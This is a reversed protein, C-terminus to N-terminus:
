AIYSLSKSELYLRDPDLDIENNWFVIGNDVKVKSCISEDKLSKYIPYCLYPTLDFTKLEKNTFEVILKYPSEYTVKKARPNM